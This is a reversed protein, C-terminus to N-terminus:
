RRRLYRRRRANARERATISAAYYIRTIDVKSHGAMDAVVDIPTGSEVWETIATHRFRHPHAHVGAAKGTEAVVYRLGRDSWPVLLERPEGYGLLVHAAKVAERTFVVVREKDGKGIIRVAPARWRWRRPAPWSRAQECTLTLVEASRMGTEHMLHMVAAVDPRAAAYLRRLEDDTYPKPLRKSRRAPPAIPPAIEEPLSPKGTLIWRELIGDLEEPSVDNDVLELMTVEAIKTGHREAVARYAEELEWPNASM